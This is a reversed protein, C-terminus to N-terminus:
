FYTRIGGIIDYDDNVRYLLQWKDFTTCPHSPGLSILDGVRLRAYAPLRLFAHQDHLMIVKWGETPQRSDLKGPRYWFLPTPLEVDCSIDRKGIGVIALDSEPRSHVVGFVELANTPEPVAALDADTGAHLM